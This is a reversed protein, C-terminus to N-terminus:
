RINGIERKLAEVNKEGRFINDRMEAVRAQYKAYNKENGQREPEGGNFERRLDALRREESRLEDTLIARRDDDRAKQQANDVRPFDTPTAATAARAPSAGKRAPPAAISGPVELMRCGPRNNDTLERRGQSDTCLYIGAAAMPAAGMLAFGLVAPFFRTTM